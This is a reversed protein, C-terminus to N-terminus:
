RVVDAQAMLVPPRRGQLHLSTLRPSGVTEVARAVAARQCAAYRRDADVGQPRTGHEDCVIRTAKEIRRLLTRAGADTGLDLDRVVVIKTRPSPDAQAPFSAALAGAAALALAGAFTTPRSMGTM